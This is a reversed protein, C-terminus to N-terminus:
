PCIKEGSRRRANLLWGRLRLCRWHTAQTLKDTSLASRAALEHLCTRSSRAIRMTFSNQPLPFSGSEAGDSPNLEFAKRYLEQARPIDNEVAHAHMARGSAIMADNPIAKLAADYLKGIKQEVEAVKRDDDEDHETQWNTLASELALAYNYLGVGLVSRKEDGHKDFDWGGAEGESVHLVEDFLRFAQAQNPGAAWM